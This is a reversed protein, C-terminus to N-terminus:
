RRWAQSLRPEMPEASFVAPPKELLAAWPVLLDVERRMSMVHHRVREAALRLEDLTEASLVGPRAEVMQMLMRDIEPLSEASLCELLSLWRQPEHEVALVQRRIEALAAQLLSPRAGEETAQLVEGLLALTDLLGQWRPWRLVAVEPMGLCGQSLTILCGALNGSDVTSVYRPPLPALTRTDYWNLFHGRHRELSELTDFASNLRLAQGLLGSM